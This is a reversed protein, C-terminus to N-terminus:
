RITISEISKEVVKRSKKDNENYFYLITWFENGSYIGICEARFPENYFDARIDAYTVNKGNINRKEKKILIPSLKEPNEFAEMFTDMNFNVKMDPNVMSGHYISVFMKDGTHSYSEPNNILDDSAFKEHIELDFPLYLYLKKGDEQLLGIMKNSDMDATKSNDSETYYHEANNGCGISIISATIMVILMIIKAKM